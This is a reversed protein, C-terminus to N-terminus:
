ISYQAKTSDIMNAFAVSELHQTVYLRCLDNNESAIPTCHLCKRCMKTASSSPMFQVSDMVNGFMFVLSTTTGTPSTTHEM